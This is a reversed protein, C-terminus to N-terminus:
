GGLDVSRHPPPTVPLRRTPGSSRATPSTRCTSPPSPLCCLPSPARPTRTCRCQAPAAAVPSSSGRLPSSGRWSGPSASPGAGCSWCGKREVESASCSIFTCDGLVSAMTQWARYPITPHLM